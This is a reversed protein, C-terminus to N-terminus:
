TEGAARKPGAVITVQNAVAGLTGPHLELEGLAADQQSGEVTGALAPLEEGAPAQGAIGTLTWQHAHEMRIPQREDLTRGGVPPRVEVTETTRDPGCPGVQAPTEPAGEGLAVRQNRADPGSHASGIGQGGPI